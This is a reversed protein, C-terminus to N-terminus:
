HMSEMASLRELHISMREFLDQDLVWKNSVPFSGPLDTTPYPHYGVEGLWTDLQAMVKQPKQCLTEYEMDFVRSPAVKSLQDTMIKDTFFAQEVAQQWLPKKQIQAFHPPKVSWWQSPEQQRQRGVFLSQITLLMDRHVHIFRAEPFLQALVCIAMNLYVCKILVPKQTITAISDLNRKLDLYNDSAEGYLDPRVYHSSSDDWPFWRSWISGTEAPAFLGKVRGYNSYFVPRPRKLFPKYLRFQLNPMGYLYDMIPTFYAVQFQYAVIQYALTTGSRPLGVIFLPPAYGKNGVLFHKDISALARNLIHLSKRGITKKM